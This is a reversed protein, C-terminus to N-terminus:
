INEKIREYMDCLKQIMARYLEEDTATELLGIREKCSKYREAFSTESLHESLQRLDSLVFLPAVVNETAPIALVTNVLVEFLKLSKKGKLDNPEAGHALLTKRLGDENLNEILYKNLSSYAKFIQERDHLLIPPRYYEKLNNIDLKSIPISFRQESATVCDDFLEFVRQENDSEEFSIEIQGMYFKSAVDHDSEINSAQFRKLHRWMEPDGLDDLLDGLWFFINGNRNIGFGYRFISEGNHYINGSSFSHLRVKYDPHFNYYLLIDKDFFVPNLFGKNWDRYLGPISYFDRADYEFGLSSYAPFKEGSGPLALMAGSREDAELKEFSQELIESSPTSVIETTNCNKCRLSIEQFKLIKGNKELQNEGFEIFRFEGCKKCSLPNNIAM